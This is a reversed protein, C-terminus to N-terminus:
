LVLLYDIEVPLESALIVTLLLCSITEEFERRSFCLALARGAPHYEHHLFPSHSLEEQEHWLCSLEVTQGLSNEKTTEFWRLVAKCSLSGSVDESLWPFGTCHKLHEAKAGTCGWRTSVDWEPTCRALRKILPGVLCFGWHPCSSIWMICEVLM